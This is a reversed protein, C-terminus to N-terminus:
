FPNVRRALGLVWLPLVRPLYYDEEAAAGGGAAHECCCGELGAELLEKGSGAGAAEGPPSDCCGRGCEVGACSRQRRVIALLKALLADKGSMPGELIPDTPTAGDYLEVEVRVGAQELARAFETTQRWPVTADAKGHALFVPLAALAKRGSAGLARVHVAPSLAPPDPILQALLRRHLGREHLTEVLPGLDYPGSIGVWSRLQELRWSSEIAQGSWCPVAMRAGVLTRPRASGATDDAEADALAARHTVVMSVLHAGASQGVLTVNKPDGRLRQLNSLTWAVAADVDAVMNEISAQPFNRYDPSVVLVGNAQLVMAQLFAWAKYGIIWAGGSVFIVVPRLHEAPPQATPEATPQATPTPSYIDLQHRLSPGYVLNKYIQAHLLYRIFQPGLVPLTLLVFGVLRVFQLLWLGPLGVLAQLTLWQCWCWWATGALTRDSRIPSVSSSSSFPEDATAHLPEDTSSSSSSSADNDSSRRARTAAVVM